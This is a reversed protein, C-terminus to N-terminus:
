RTPTSNGGERHAKVETRAAIGAQQRRGVAYGWGFMSSLVILVGAGAIATDRWPNRSLTLEDAHLDTM